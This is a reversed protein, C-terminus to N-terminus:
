KRKKALYADRRQVMQMYLVEEKVKDPDLGTDYAFCNMRHMTRLFPIRIDVEVDRLKKMGASSKILIDLIRDQPCGPSRECTEELAIM